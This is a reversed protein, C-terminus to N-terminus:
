GIKDARKKQIYAVLEGMNGVQKIEEDAIEIDFADELAILIQVIDLSDAELEKFSTTASFKADPKRTVTLVIDRIREEVSKDDIM